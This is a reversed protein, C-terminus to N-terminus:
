SGHHQRNFLEDPELELRAALLQMAEANASGGNAKIAKSVTCVAVQGAAIQNLSFGNLCVLAKRINPMEYGLELATQLLVRNRNTKPQFLKGLRTNQFRKSLSM